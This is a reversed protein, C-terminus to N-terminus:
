HGITSSINQMIVILPSQKDLFIGIENIEKGEDAGTIITGTLGTLRKLEGYLYELRRNSDKLKNEASRNCTLDSYESMIRVIAEKIREEQGIKERCEKIKYQQEVLAHEDVIVQV